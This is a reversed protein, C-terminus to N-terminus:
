LENIDGQIMLVYTRIWRLAFKFPFINKFLYYSYNLKFIKFSCYYFLLAIIIYFFLTLLIITRYFQDMNSISEDIILMTNYSDIKSNIGIMKKRLILYIIFYRINIKVINFTIYKNITFQIFFIGIYSVLKITDADYNTNEISTKIFYHSFLYGCFGVIYFLIFKKFSSDKNIFNFKINLIFSIFIGVNSSFFNSILPDLNYIKYLILFLFFDISASFIGFVAYKFIQILTNKM